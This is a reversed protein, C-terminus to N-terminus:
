NGVYKDHHGMGVCSGFTPFEASHTHGDQYLALELQNQATHLVRDVLESRVSGLWLLRWRAIDAKKVDHVESKIRVGEPDLLGLRHLTMANFHVLWSADYLVHLCLTTMVIAVSGPMVVFEEKTQPGYAASWASGKTKDLAKYADRIVSKLTRKSDWEPAPQGSTYKVLHEKDTVTRDPRKRAFQSRLSDMIAKKGLAPWVGRPRKGPFRSSVPIPHSPKKPVDVLCDHQEFLHWHKEDPYSLTSDKGGVAFPPKGVKRMHGDLVVDSGDNGTNAIIGQGLHAGFYLSNELSYRIGGPTGEAALYKHVDEMFTDLM